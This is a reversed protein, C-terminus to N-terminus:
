TATAFTITIPAPSYGLTLDVPGGPPLVLARGEASVERILPAAARTRKTAASGVCGQGPPSQRSERRRTVSQAPPFAVM